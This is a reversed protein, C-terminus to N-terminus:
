RALQSYGRSFEEKDILDLAQQFEENWNRSVSTAATNLAPAFAGTQGLPRNTSLTPKSNGGGMADQCFELHM